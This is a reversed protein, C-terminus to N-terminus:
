FLETLLPFYFTPGYLVTCCWIYVLLAIPSWTENYYKDQYKDKPWVRWAKFPRTNLGSTSIDIKDWHYFKLCSGSKGINVQWIDNRFTGNILKSKFGNSYPLTPLELQQTNWGAFPHEALRERTLIMLKISFCSKVEKEM